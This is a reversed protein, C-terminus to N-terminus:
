SSETLTWAKGKLRRPFSARAQALFRDAAPQYACTEVHIEDQAINVVNYSNGQGQRTRTSISTGSQAVIIGQPTQRILPIHTHGNLILEVGLGALRNLTRTPFWQGAPRWQGEWLLHHHMVLVKCADAPAGKLERELWQRQGPLWIGGPLVNHNDNLGVVFLGREQFVTDTEPRIFEKYRGWPRTLREYLGSLHLPQDHNGPITLVPEPLKQLFSKAQEYERIRGRMTWDGSVIVLDPRAAQIDQLILEALREVNKLGFHLDSLHFIRIM